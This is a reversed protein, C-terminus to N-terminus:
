KASFFRLLHMVHATRDNLNATTDMPDSYAMRIQLKKIIKKWRVVPCSVVGIQNATTFFRHQDIANFLLKGVFEKGKTIKVSDPKWLTFANVPGASWSRCSECHCYGMGEPAGTVEVEVTGCFCMGKHNDGM